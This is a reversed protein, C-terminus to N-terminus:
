YLIAHATLPHKLWSCILCINIQFVILNFEKEKFKGRLNEQGLKEVEEMGMVDVDSHLNIKALTSKTGGM